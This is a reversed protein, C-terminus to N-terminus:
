PMIQKVATGSGPHSRLRDILDAVGLLGEATFPCRGAAIVVFPDPPAVDTWAAPLSFLEGGEDRCYVRDEGWNRRHVVFEFDRGSLPHFRHTVRVRQYRDDPDPATSPATWRWRRVSSRPIGARAGRGCGGRSHSGDAASGAGPVLDMVM